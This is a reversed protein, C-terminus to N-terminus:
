HASVSSFFHCGAKQMFAANSTVTEIELFTFRPLLNLKIDPALHDTMMLNTKVM